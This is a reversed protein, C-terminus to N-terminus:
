STLAESDCFALLAATAACASAALAAFAIILALAALDDERPSLECSLDVVGDGERPDM